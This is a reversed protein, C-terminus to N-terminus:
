RDVKLEFTLPKEKGADWDVRVNARSSTLRVIRGKALDYLLTQQRDSLLIPIGDSPDYVACRQKANDTAVHFALGADASFRMVGDVVFSKPAQESGVILAPIDPSKAPEPEAARVSSILLSIAYACAFALHFLANHM